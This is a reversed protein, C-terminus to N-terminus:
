INSGTNNETENHLERGKQVTVDYTKDVKIETKNEINLLDSSSTKNDLISTTKYEKSFQQKNLIKECRLTEDETMTQSSNCFNIKSSKMIKKKNDVDIEFKIPTTECSNFLTSFYPYNQCVYTRVDQIFTTGESFAIM